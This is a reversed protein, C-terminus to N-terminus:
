QIGVAGLNLNLKWPKAYIMHKQEFRISMM